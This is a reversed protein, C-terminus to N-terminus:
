TGGSGVAELPVVITTEEVGTLTAAKKSWNVQLNEADSTEFLLFRLQTSRLQHEEEPKPLTVVTVVLEVSPDIWENQPFLIRKTVTMRHAGDPSTANLMKRPAFTAIGIAAILLAVIGITIAVLRKM